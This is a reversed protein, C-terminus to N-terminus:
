NILSKRFWQADLSFHSLKHNVALKGIVALSHLLLLRDTRGRFNHGAQRLPNVSKGARMRWWDGASCKIKKLLPQLNLYLMARPIHERRNLISNEQPLLWSVIGISHVITSTVWCNTLYIPLPWRPLLSLCLDIGHCSISYLHAEISPILSPSCWWKLVCFILDFIRYVIDLVMSFLHLISSLIDPHPHSM